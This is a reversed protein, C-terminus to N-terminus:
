QCHEKLEVRYSFKPREDLPLPEEAIDSLVPSWPGSVPADTRPREWKNRQKKEGKRRSARDVRTQELSQYEKTGPIPASDASRRKKKKKRKRRLKSSDVRTQELSQNEKTGPIPASDALLPPLDPFHAEPAMIDIKKHELIHPASSRKKRDERKKRSRSTRLHKLNPRGGYIQGCKIYLHNVALDNNYNFEYGNNYKETAYQKFQRCIWILQQQGMVDEQVSVIVLFAHFNNESSIDLIKIEIYDQYDQQNETFWRNIVCNRLTKRVRKSCHWSWRHNKVFDDDWTLSRYGEPIPRTFDIKSTDVRIGMDVRFTAMWCWSTRCVAMLVGFGRLGGM